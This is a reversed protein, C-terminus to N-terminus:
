TGGEAEEVLPFVSGAEARRVSISWGLCHGPSNEGCGSWFSWIRRTTRHDSRCLICELLPNVFIKYLQMMVQRRRCQVSQSIFVLIEYTKKVERDVRAAIKMSREGLNRQEVM